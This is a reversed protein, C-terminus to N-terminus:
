AMACIGDSLAVFLHYSTIQQQCCIASPLLSTVSHQRRNVSSQWWNIVSLMWSQTCCLPYSPTVCCRMPGDANFSVQRQYM